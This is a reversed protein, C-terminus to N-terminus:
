IPYRGRENNDGRLYHFIGFPVFRGRVQGNGILPPQPSQLMGLIGKGLTTNIGEARNLAAIFYALFRTPDNDGEDLSFWAIRNEIQSEKAADLPVVVSGAFSSDMCTVYISGPYKPQAKNM